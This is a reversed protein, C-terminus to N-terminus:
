SESAGGALIAGAKRLQQQLSAVAIQSPAVKQKLAQHAAAGAAQGMKMYEPEMRLTGYGLHTSSVCTSVLLGQVRRPVMVRYPIQYGKAAPIQVNGPPVELHINGRDFNLVQHSDLTYGGCGISDPKRVNDRGDMEKFVYQGLIRRAERVYLMHPVHGTDRHEDGALGWRLANRRLEVPVSPDHQLFYFWSLTRRKYEHYIAERRQWSGEPYDVNIEAWDTSVWCHWQANGDYKDRVPGKAFLCDDVFQRIEHQNVYDALLEFESPNYGAPMEIPVRKAPDDTVTLRFCYAQILRDPSKLGHPEQFQAKSERGILYPAGAKAALDGEYTADIFITGQVRTLRGDHLRFVAATLTDGDKYTEDLRAYPYVTIDGAEQLMQRFIRDALHPEFCWYSHRDGGHENYYAEIRDFFERCLGGTTEPHGIDTRTLGATMMGGIHLYPDFLTVRRGLRAAQIAACLGGPSGGYIVVEAQESELQGGHLTGSVPAKDAARAWQGTAPNLLSGGLIVSKLFTRRTPHPRDSM